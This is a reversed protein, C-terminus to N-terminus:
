NQKLPFVIKTEHDMRSFKNNYHQTNLDFMTKVLLSVIRYQFGPAYISWVGKKDFLTRLEQIKDYYKILYIGLLVTNFM